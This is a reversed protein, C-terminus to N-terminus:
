KVKYYSDNCYESIDYEEIAGISSLFSITDNLADIDEPSIAVTYNYKPLIAKVQDEDLSLYRAVKKWVTDPVEDFSDAARKYQELIVEVVKPNASTYDKRGVITNVGALGCDSGVGIVKGAGSDVIRTISPEWLAVADVQEKRLLYPMDSTTADVLEVQDLDVGGSALYKQVLNHGTSGITTAIKKGALDEPGEIDSDSSVLVAYSDAAQASIAVIEREQGEHIASVTPVDGMVGLDTEGKAISENLPPGSEFDYWVVSVGYEELADDIWGNERAIFLPIFAASPQIAISVVGATIGSERSGSKGACGAFLGVAMTFVLVLSLLKKKMVVNGGLTLFGPTGIRPVEVQWYKDM